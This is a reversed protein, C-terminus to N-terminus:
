GAQAGPARQTPKRAKVTATISWALAVLLAALTAPVLGWPLARASVTWAQRSDALVRPQKVSEPITVEWEYASNPEADILKWSKKVDVGYIPGQYGRDSRTWNGICRSHRVEQRDYTVYCHDVTAHPDDAGPWLGATWSLVGGLALGVLVVVGLRMRLAIM